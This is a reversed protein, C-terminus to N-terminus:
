KLCDSNLLEDLRFQQKPTLKIRDELPLPEILPDCFERRIRIGDLARFQMAEQRKIETIFQDRYKKACRQYRQRCIVRYPPTLNTYSPDRSDNPTLIECPLKPPPAKKKWWQVKTEDKSAREVVMEVSKTKTKSPTSLGEKSSIKEKSKKLEEKSMKM